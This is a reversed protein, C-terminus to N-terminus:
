QGDNGAEEKDTGQRTKDKVLGLDFLVLDFWVKSKM